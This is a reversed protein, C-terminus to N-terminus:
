TDLDHLLDDLVVEEELAMGAGNMATTLEPDWPTPPLTGSLHQLEIGHQEATLLGHQYDHRSMRWPQGNTLELVQDTIILGDRDFDGHYRVVAGDSAVRSLLGRAPTTLHGSVCIVPHTLAADIEADVLRPNECVSILTGPQVLRHPSAALDRLTLHTPLQQATRERLTNSWPDDGDWPLAYSLVTASVSDLAVRCREWLDRRESSRHPMPLEHAIAAARLVISELPQGPDLAHAGGGCRAALDGRSIWERNAGSPLELQALVAAARRALIALHASETKGPRQVE